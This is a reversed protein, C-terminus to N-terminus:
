FKTSNGGVTSIKPVFIAFFLLGIYTPTRSQDTVTHPDPMDVAFYIVIMISTQVM